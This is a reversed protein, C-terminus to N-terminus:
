TFIGFLISSYYSDIFDNTLKGNRKLMVLGGGGWGYNRVECFSTQEWHINIQAQCAELRAETAEGLEVAVTARATM